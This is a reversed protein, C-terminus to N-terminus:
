NTSLLVQPTTLHKHAGHSFDDHFGRVSIIYISIDYYNILNGQIQGLLRSHTSRSFDIKGSKINM